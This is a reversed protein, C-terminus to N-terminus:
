CAKLHCLCDSFRTRLAIMPQLAEWNRTARSDQAVIPIVAREGPALHKEHGGFLAEYIAVPAAIRSDKGSRAGAVVCVEAFAKGPYTERGTCRRWLDLEEATLALGYISKLLTRQAPSISLALLNEDEVFEIITPAIM